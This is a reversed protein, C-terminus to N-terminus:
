AITQYIGAFWIVEKQHTHEFRSVHVTLSRLMYTCTHFFLLIYFINEKKTEHNMPGPSISFSV